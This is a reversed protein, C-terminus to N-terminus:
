LEPNETELTLSVRAVICYLMVVKEDHLIM